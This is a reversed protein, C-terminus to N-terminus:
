PWVFLVANSSIFFKLTVGKLVSEDTRLPALTRLTGMKFVGLGDMDIRSSSRKSNSLSKSACSPVGFLQTFCIKLNVSVFRAHTCTECFRSCMEKSIAKVYTTVTNWTDFNHREFVLRTRKQLAYGDGGQM